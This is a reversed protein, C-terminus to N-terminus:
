SATPTYELAAWNSFRGSSCNKYGILETNTGARDRTCVCGSRYRRVNRFTYSLMASTLKREVPNNSASERGKVRTTRPGLHSFAAMIKAANVTAANVWGTALAALQNNM